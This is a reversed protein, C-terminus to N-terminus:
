TSLPSWRRRCAVRSTNRPQGTRLAMSAPSAANRYRRAHKGNRQHQAQAAIGPEASGPQVSTIGRRARQALAVACPCVGRGAAVADGIKAAQCVLAM